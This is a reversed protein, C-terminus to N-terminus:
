GAPAAAQAPPGPISAIPALPAYVGSRAALMVEGRANPLLEEYYKTKMDAYRDDAKLWHESEMLCATFLLQGVNDGIWTNQAVVISPPRQVYRRKIATANVDAAPAILWESQGHDAYYYPKGAAAALYMQIFDFSRKVLAKTVGSYVVWLNREVVFQPNVVANATATAAMPLPWTATTATNTLTVSQIENDSFTVVYPGTTGTWPSALTASTAGLAIGATFVLPQSGPPKPVTAAAPALAVQDNVDFIDLDLDIIVRLEGLYIIRNLSALYQASSKLPWVQLASYLQNYSFGQM